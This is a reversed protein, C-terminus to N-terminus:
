PRCGSTYRTRWIAETGVRVTFSRGNRHSGSADSRDGGEPARHHVSGAAEAQRDEETKQPRIHLDVLHRGQRAVRPDFRVADGVRLGTELMLELLLRFTKPQKAYGHTGGNLKLPMM